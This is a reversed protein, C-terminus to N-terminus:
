SRRWTSIGRPIAGHLWPLRWRVCCCPRWRPWRCSASPATSVARCNSVRSASLSWGCQQRSRRSWGPATRRWRGRAVRTCSCSVPAVATRCCARPRSTPWRCCCPPPWTPLHQGKTRATISCQALACAKPAWSCPTAWGCAWVRWSARSWGSRAAARCLPLSRPRGMRNQRSACSGVCPTARAPLACRLWCTTM